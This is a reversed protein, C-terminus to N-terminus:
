DQLALSHRAIHARADEMIRQGIETLRGGERVTRDGIAFNRVHLELDKRAAEEEDPELVGADLLRQVALHMRAIIYTAHVVGDMPRPDARLPSSFFEDDPNEVLPGDTCLGFLLSHGSEHALSQTIDLRSLPALANFLMAGWLMYSSAANFGIAGPEDPAAAVVIESLLAEIEEAMAPFGARLLAFADDMRDRCLEFHEAAVPRVRDPESMLLRAYREVEAAPRDQFPTLLVDSAPHPAILEGALQRALEAEDRDIALVLDYYIGFRQPSQPRERIDALATEVAEKGIQLDGSLEAHIYAISDALRARMREDLARARLPNPEIGDMAM